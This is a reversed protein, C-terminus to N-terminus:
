QINNKVANFDNLDVKGNGDLDACPGQTGFNDLLNQYDAMDVLKDGNTDGVVFANKFQNFDNLNVINDGNLDGPINEGKSGFYRKIDRFDKLVDQCTLTTTTVISGPTESNVEEEAPNDKNATADESSEGGADTGDINKGTTTKSCASGLFLFLASLIIYTIQM